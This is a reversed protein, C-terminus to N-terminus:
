RTTVPQSMGYGYQLAEASTLAHSPIHVQIMPGTCGDIVPVTCLGLEYNNVRKPQHARVLKRILM